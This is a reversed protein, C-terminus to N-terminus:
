QNTITDSPITSYMTYPEYDKNTNPEQILLLFLWSPTSSICARVLDCSGGGNVYEISTM